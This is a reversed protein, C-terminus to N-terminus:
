FPALRLIYIRLVDVPQLNLTHHRLQSWNLLNFLSLPPHLPQFSPILMQETKIFTIIQFQILM